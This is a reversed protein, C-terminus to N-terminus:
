SYSYSQAKTIPIIVNRVYIPTFNLAGMLELICRHHDNMPSVVSLDRFGGILCSLFKGSVDEGEFSKSALCGMM